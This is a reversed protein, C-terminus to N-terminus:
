HIVASFRVERVIYENIGYRVIRLQDKEGLNSM